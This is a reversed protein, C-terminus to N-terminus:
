ELALGGIGHMNALVMILIDHDVTDFATSLDLGMLLIRKQKGSAKVTDHHIKILITKTYFNKKYALIYDPLLNQTTVCRNLQELIAKQVYKPMICLNNVPKYNKLDKSLNPKKILPM